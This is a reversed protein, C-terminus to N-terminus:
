LMMRTNILSGLLTLGSSLIFCAYVIQNNDWGDRFRSNDFLLALIVINNACLLYKFLIENYLYSDKMGAIFRIM